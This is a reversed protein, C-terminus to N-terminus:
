CSMKAHMKQAYAKLETFTNRLPFDLNKSNKFKNHCSDLIEKRYNMLDLTNSFINFKLFLIWFSNISTRKIEM